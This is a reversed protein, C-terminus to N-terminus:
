AIRATMPKSEIYINRVREVDMAVNEAGDVSMPIAIGGIIDLRVTQTM